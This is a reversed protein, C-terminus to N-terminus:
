NTHYLNEVIEKQSVQTCEASLARSSGKITITSEEENEKFCDKDEILGDQKINENMLASKVFKIIRGKGLSEREIIPIKTASIALLPQM